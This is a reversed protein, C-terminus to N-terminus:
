IHFHAGQRISSSMPETYLECARMIQEKHSVPSSLHHIVLLKLGPEGLNVLEVRRVAPFGLFQEGSALPNLVGKVDLRGDASMALWHAEQPAAAPNRGLMEVLAQSPEPLDFQVVGRVNRAFAISLAHM